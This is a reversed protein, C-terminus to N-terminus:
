QGDQVWDAIAAADGCGSHKLDQTIRGLPPASGRYRKDKENTRDSECRRKCPILFLECRLDVGFGESCGGCDLGGRPPRKANAM